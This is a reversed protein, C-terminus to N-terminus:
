TDIQVRHNMGTASETVLVSTPMAAPGEVLFVYSPLRANLADVMRRLGVARAHPRTPVYVADLVAYVVRVADQLNM